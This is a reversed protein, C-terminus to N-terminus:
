WPLEEAGVACQTCCFLIVGRATPRFTGLSQPVSVKEVPRNMESLGAAVLGWKMMPAWFFM